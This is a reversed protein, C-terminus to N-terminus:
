NKKASLFDHLVFYTRPDIEDSRRNLSFNKEFPRYAYKLVRKYYELKNYNFSDFFSFHSSNTEKMFGLLALNVGSDDNDPPICFSDSIKKIM